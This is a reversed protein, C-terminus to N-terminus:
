CLVGGGRPRSGVQRCLRLGFRATPTTPRLTRRSPWRGGTATPWSSRRITSSNRTLKPPSSTTLDKWSLMWPAHKRSLDFLICCSLPRYKKKIHKCNNITARVVCLNRIQAEIRSSSTGDFEAFSGAPPLSLASWLGIVRLCYLCLTPCAVSFLFSYLQLVQDYALCFPLGCCCVVALHYDLGALQRENCQPVVWGQTGQGQCLSRAM